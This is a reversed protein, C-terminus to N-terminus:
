CGEARELAINRIQYVISTFDEATSKARYVLRATLTGNNCFWIGSAKTLEFGERPHSEGAVKLISPALQQLTELSLPAKRTNRRKRRKM